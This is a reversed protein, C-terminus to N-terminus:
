AEEAPMLTFREGEDCPSRQQLPATHGRVDIQEHEAVRVHIIHTASEQTPRTYQGLIALPRTQRRGAAAAAAAGSVRLVMARKGERTRRADDDVLAGDYEDVQAAVIELAGRDM